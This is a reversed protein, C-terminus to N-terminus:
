PASGYAVTPLFAEATRIPRPIVDLAHFTDAIAQQRALVEPTIPRLGSPHRQEARLLAEYAIGSSAALIRAAEEHHTGAWESLREYEALVVRVLDEHQEAFERRVVYFLHNDVLDTGDRLIRAGALEVAALFPDWIVWADVEGSDFAARADAPALFVLEIDALGLKARELARVLLYHVNSGRNVAVRKGALQAVTQIPSDAPVVIAEAEPAPPDTAVYVFPVGGSQAFVPPTEGVYGIDVAGARMAELLPPGAQFEVWEPRAGRAELQAILGEARQKLLFPPGIKQYGLRVVTDTSPRAQDQATAPGEGPAAAPQADNGCALLWVALVVHGPSLRSLRSPHLSM